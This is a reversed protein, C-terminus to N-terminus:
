AAVWHVGVRAPRAADGRGMPPANQGQVSGASLHTSGGRTQRDPLPSLPLIPLGRCRAQDDAHAPFPPIHAREGGSAARRGAAGRKSPPALGRPWFTKSCGRVATGPTCAISKVLRSTAHTVIMAGAQEAHAPRIGMCLQVTRGSWGVRTHKGWQAGDHTPPAGQHTRVHWSHALGPVHHCCGCGNYWQAQGCGSKCLAAAMGCATIQNGAYWPPLLVCTLWASGATGPLLSTLGTIHADWLLLTLSCMGGAAPGLFLPPGERVQCCVRRAPVAAAAAALQSLGARSASCSSFGHDAASPASGAGSAAPRVSRSDSRSSSSSSSSSVV